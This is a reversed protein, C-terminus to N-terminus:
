TESRMLDEREECDKRDGECPAGDDICFGPGPDKVTGGKGDPWYKLTRWCRICM